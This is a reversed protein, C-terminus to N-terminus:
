ARLGVLNLRNGIVRLIKNLLPPHITTRLVAQRTRTAPLIPIATQALPQVQLVAQRQRGRLAEGSQRLRCAWDQFAARQHERRAALGKSFRGRRSKLRTGSLNGSTTNREAKTFACRLG